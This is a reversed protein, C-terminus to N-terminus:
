FNSEKLFCINKQNKFIKKRNIKLLLLLLVCFAVLAMAVVPNGFVPRTGGSEPRMAPSRPHRGVITAAPVVASKGCVVELGNDSGSPPPVIEPKVTADSWAATVRRNHEVDPTHQMVSKHLVILRMSILKTAM